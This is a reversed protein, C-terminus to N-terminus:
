HGLWAEMGNGRGKGSWAGGEECESGPRKLRKKLRGGALGYGSEGLSGYESFCTRCNGRLDVQFGAATRQGGPTGTILKIVQSGKATWLASVGVCRPETACPPGLMGLYTKQFADRGLGCRSPLQFSGWWWWWWLTAPQQVLEWSDHEAVPRM